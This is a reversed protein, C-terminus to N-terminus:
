RLGLLPRVLRVNTLGRWIVMPFIIGGLVYIPWLSAFMDPPLLSSLETIQCKGLIVFILTMLKFGLFQFILISMTGGGLKLLIDNIKKNMKMMSLIRSISYIFVSGNIVLIVDIIPENVHSTAVDMSLMRNRGFYILGLMSIIFLVACWYWKVKKSIEYKAVITKTGFGIMYFFQTMMAKGFVENEFPYHRTGFSSYAYIYIFYSVIIYLTGAKNSDATIILKQIIEACFLVPLFWIAGFWDCQLWSFMSMIGQSLPLVETRSSFLFLLGNKQLFWCGVTGLSAFTLYPVILAYFRKKFFEGLSYTHMNSVYGSILFFAGVHFQYIYINFDNTAHGIVVLIITLAKFYDVWKIREKM